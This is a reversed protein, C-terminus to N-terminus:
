ADHALAHRLSRRVERGLPRPKRERLLDLPAGALGHTDRVVSRDLPEAHDVALADLHDEREAGPEAAADVDVSFHEMELERMMGELLALGVFLPDAVLLK